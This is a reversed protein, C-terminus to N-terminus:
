SKGPAYNAAMKKVTKVGRITLPRGLAKELPVTSFTSRGPKKRRLWYIERGHVHFEDTDTRLALVKQKFKEELPDAVFIINFEAAADIESQRFPTYDVIAALEADTRIFTTVESGLAERLKNEIKRELMNANKTTTEFVVNGSAIFTTVGSFGLSEFSQRLVDMKVTRGGGVNIARLFAIFRSMTWIEHKAYAESLLAKPMAAATSRRASAGDAVGAIQGDVEAAFYTGNDILQTDLGNVIRAICAIIFHRGCGQCLFELISNLRPV